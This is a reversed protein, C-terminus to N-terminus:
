SSSGSRSISRPNGALPATALSLEQAPAVVEEVSPTRTARPRRISEVHARM